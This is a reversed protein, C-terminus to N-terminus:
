EVLYGTSELAQSHTNHPPHPLTFMPKGIDIYPRGNGMSRDHKTIIIDIHEMREGRTQTMEYFPQCGM